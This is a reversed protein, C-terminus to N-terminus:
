THDVISSCREAELDSRRRHILQLRALAGEEAVALPTRKPDALRWSRYTTEGIDLAAGMKADSYGLRAQHAILLEAFTPPTGDDKRAPTTM